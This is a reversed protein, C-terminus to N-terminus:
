PRKTAYLHCTPNSAKGIIYLYSQLSGIGTRLQIYASQIPRLNSFAHFKTSFPLLDIKSGAIQRYLKGIGIPKPKETELKWSEKQNAIIAIKAKRAPHSFSITIVAIPPKDLAKKVLHNVIENGYIRYHTLYQQIM